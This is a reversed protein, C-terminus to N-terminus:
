LGELSPLYLMGSTSAAPQVAGAAPTLTTNTGGAFKYSANAASSAPKFNLGTMIYGTVATASGSTGANNNLTLVKTTNDVATILYNGIFTGTGGTNATIRVYCKNAVVASLDAGSVTLSATGGTITGNSFSVEGVSTFSPNVATDTIDKSFNTVDTTNGYFNNYLGINSDMSTTMLLGTANYLFNNGIFRNSPASAGTGNYGIGTPTSIRGLFTNYLYICIGTTGSNTHGSTSNNAFINGMMTFTSSSGSIGNVSDHIYNYYFRIAANSGSPAAANGNQSVLDCYAVLATSPIIAARAAATSTNRLTCYEYTGAAAATWVSSGTGTAYIYKANTNAGFTWTNAGQAFLPQDTSSIPSDGVFTTYGIWWGTNTTTCNASTIAMSANPVYTGAKVYVRYGAPLMEGFEDALGNLRGAGGIYFTGATINNVGNTPTRDLVLSTASTWSVIEYWGVLAGTGTLATPHMTNGVFTKKFGGTASSVTTSAATCTLDTSGNIIATDSQSYDITWTGGSAAETNAIGSTTTAMKEGSYRMQAAGAAVNITAKNSAVSTIPFWRENWYGSAKVFLWHGVDNADFNYSASSVTPTTTSVTNYTIAVTVKYINIDNGGTGVGSTLRIRAGDWSTKDYIGSLPLTIVVDTISTSDAPVVASTLPTTGDSKFIQVAGMQLYDGKSSARNCRITVSVAGVNILDSPMNELTFNSATSPTATKIYTSDSSDNICAYLNTTGGSDTTWSGRSVDSDAFKNTSSLGDVVLDTMMNANSPNFGAGNVNGTTASAQIHFQSGTALAM